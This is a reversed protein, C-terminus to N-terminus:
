YLVYTVVLEMNKCSSAESRDVLRSNLLSCTKTPIGTLTVTLQNGKELHASVEGGWPNHSYYNPLYENEILSAISLPTTKYQSSKAYDSSATYIKALMANATTVKENRFAPQFYVMVVVAMISLVTLSLMLELLGIGQQQTFRGIM